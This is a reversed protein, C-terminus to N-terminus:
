SGYFIGTIDVARPHSLLSNKLYILNFQSEYEFDRAIAQFGQESLFDHVRPFLWQGVWFPKTEVEIFLVTCKHMCRTMGGLVKKSAGEVDIWASFDSNSLANYEIFTDLRNTKVQVEEYVISDLPDEKALLSNNGVVQPVDRGAITKKIKFSEFGNSDSIAMNLYHIGHEKADKHFHSYNYKNAEFAYCTLNTEKRRRKSFDANFAGIEFSIQNGIAGDLAHFLNILDVNSKKRWQPDTLDYSYKISSLAALAALPSSHM